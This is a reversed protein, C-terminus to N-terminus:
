LIGADIKSDLQRRAAAIYYSDAVYEISTVVYTRVEAEYIIYQTIPIRIYSALAPQCASSRALQM